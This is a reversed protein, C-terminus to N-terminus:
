TFAISIEDNGAAASRVLGFDLGLTALGEREGEQVNQYQCKPATITCINGATVGHKWTLQGLAGSVWKGYWDHTAVLEEEPDLSGKPDRDTLRGSFVGEVKNVDQRVTIVNGMDFAIASAFASFGQVSLAASLLAPPLTTEVGTPTLTAVDAVAAYVGRFTFDLLGPEGSKASYKVLGRCGRLQKRLGGRYIALTLSPVDANLSKPAYTVSTLAVITEGFGCAKLLKGLAPATGATGSGKVEVKFSIEGALTGPIAAHKSFSGDVLNRKFLPINPTFKPEMVLLNADANALVEATGETTEIKAAVVALRSLMDGM